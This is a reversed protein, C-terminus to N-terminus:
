AAPSPAATRPAAAAGSDPRCAADAANRSRPMGAGAAEPRLVRAALAPAAIARIIASRGPRTAAIGGSVTTHRQSPTVRASTSAAQTSPAVSMFWTFCNVRQPM